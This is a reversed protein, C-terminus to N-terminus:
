GNEPPSFNRAFVADDVAPNFVISRVTGTLLIENRALDRELWAFSRLVGGVSRFDSFESEIHKQTSDADVHLPRTDRRRTALWSIPDIYQFTEFGDSLRIKLVYYNTGSVLERGELSLQHGLEPLAHLGFLNFVLAHRLAAAARNSAQSPPKTTDPQSWAGADDIGESFVRKGDAYVDVRVRGDISAIYGGLVKFSPEVIEAESKMIRVGDLAAAGGRARTHKAVIAELSLSERAAIAHPALAAAAGVALVSRRNMEKTMSLGM